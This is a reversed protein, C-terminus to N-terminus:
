VRYILIFFQILKYFVPASNVVMVDNGEADGWWVVSQFLVKRVSASPQIYHAVNCWYFKLVWILSDYVTIIENKTVLSKPENKEVFLYLREPVNLARSYPLSTLFQPWDVSPHHPIRDFHLNHILCPVDLVQLLDNLEFHFRTEWSQRSKIRVRV